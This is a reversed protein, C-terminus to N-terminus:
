IELIEWKGGTYRALTYGCFADNNKFDVENKFYAVHIETEPAVHIDSVKGNERKTFDGKLMYTYLDIEGENDGPTIVDVLYFVDGKKLERVIEYKKKIVERFGEYIEELTPAHELKTEINSEM